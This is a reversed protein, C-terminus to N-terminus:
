DVELRAGTEDLWPDDEVRQVLLKGCMVEAIPGLRCRVGVARKTPHDAVIGAARGCLARALNDVVDGTELDEGVAPGAKPAALGVLLLEGCDEGVVTVRPRRNVPTERLKAVLVRVFDAAAVGLDGTANRAVVEIREKGLVAEIDGAQEYSALRREDGHEM